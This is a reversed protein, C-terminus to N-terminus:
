MHHDIPKWTKQSILLSIDNFEIPTYNYLKGNIGVDISLSDKLDPLSHHSHGYLHWTGRHSKNWVRMAYHCLIISQEEIKIEALEGLYIGYKKYLTRIDHHDHNGKIFFKNGNLREFYSELQRKDKNFAFDGLFYFNDESKVVRNHNTIIQDDHQQITKFPRPDYKLINTHGLHYDSSFYNKMIKITKSM